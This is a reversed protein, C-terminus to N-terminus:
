SSLPWAAHVFLEERSGGFIEVGLDATHDFLRFTKEKMPGM